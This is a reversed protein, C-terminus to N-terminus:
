PTPSDFWYHQNLERWPTVKIGNERSFDLQLEGQYDSRYQL